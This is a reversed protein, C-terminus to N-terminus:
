FIKTCAWAFGDPTWPNVPLTTPVVSVWVIVYLVNSLVVFVIEASLNCEAVVVIFTLEAVAGDAFWAKIAVDDVAAVHCVILVVPPKIESM